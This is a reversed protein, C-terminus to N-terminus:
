SLDLTHFFSDLDLPDSVGYEKLAVDNYESPHKRSLTRHCILCKCHTGNEHTLKEYDRNDDINRVSNPDM